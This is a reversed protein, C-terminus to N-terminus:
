FCETQHRSLKKYLTVGYSLPLANAFWKTPWQKLNRGVRPIVTKFGVRRLNKKM